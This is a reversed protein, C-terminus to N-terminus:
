YLQKFTYGLGQPTDYFALYRLDSWTDKKMKDYSVIGIYSANGKRKSSFDSSRYVVYVNKNKASAQVVKDFSKRDMEDAFSEDAQLLLVINQSDGNMLGKFYDWQGKVKYLGGNRNDVSVFLTDGARKAKFPANFSEKFTQMGKEFVTDKNGMMIVAPSEAIALQIKAKIAEDILSSQFSTMDTLVSLMPQGEQDKLYRADPANSPLVEIEKFGSVGGYGAVLRGTGSSTPTFYRGDFQGSIGEGQVQFKSTTVNVPNGSADKGRASLEVKDGEFIVDEMVHIDVQAIPGAPANMRIGLGNLLAREKGSLDNQIKGDVILETSGGGDLMMADKVNKQLFYGQMDKEDMGIYPSKRGDVTVFLIKQDKTIAIASRQSKGKVQHTIPLAKGEKILMSGGGIALRASPHAIALDTKLEVKDGAAFNGSLVYSNAGGAVLIYGNEPVPVSPQGFRVERVVGNEVVVETLDFFTKSAGPSNKMYEKTIAVINGYYKSPKNISAINTINGKTHNHVTVGPRIYAMFPTGSQDVLMSAYQNINYHPNSLVKGEKMMPGISFGPTSMSFFDGNIGVLMEPHQDMMASLHLRQSFGNKNFLLDLAMSPDSYDMEVVNWRQVGWEYFTSEKRFYLGKGLQIEDKDTDILGDAFSCISAFGMWLSLGLVALKKM